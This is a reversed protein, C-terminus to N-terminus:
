TAVKAWARADVNLDQWKVKVGSVTVATGGTPQTAYILDGGYNTVAVQYTPIIIQNENASPSSQTVTRAQFGTYAYSKGGITKGDYPSKRLGHPKAVLIDASGESTGNWTRCVLHDHNVARLRFQRTHGGGGHGGGTELLKEGGGSSGRKAAQAQLLEDKMRIM